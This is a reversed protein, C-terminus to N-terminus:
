THAERTDRGGVSLRHREIISLGAHRNPEFLLVSIFVTYKTRWPEVSPLSVRAYWCTCVGSESSPRRWAAHTARRKSRTDPSRTIVLSIARAASVPRHMALLF